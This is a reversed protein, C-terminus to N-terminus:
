PKKYKRPRNRCNSNKFSVATGGIILRVLHMSNLEAVYHMGFSHV